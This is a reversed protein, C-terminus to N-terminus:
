ELSALRRKLHQAAIVYGGNSGDIFHFHHRHYAKVMCTILATESTNIGYALESQRYMGELVETLQQLQHPTGSIVLRLMGDFKRHDNNRALDPKYLGWDTAPSVYGFKMFAKGLVIQLQIRLLYLIRQWWSRGSTRFRIEGMLQPISRSMELEAVPIPNTRDDFGFISELQALVTDYVADPADLGPNSQVLLTIVSKDKPGVEKWRCELGSFDAEETQDETVIQFSDARQSKILEEAYNLGGGIFVAQRYVDSVQFLAAKIDFGQRRIESVSFIAARLNLNFADAGHKMSAAFVSRAPQLLEPSFCITCGDGGFTFLVKQEEAKNLLGIIPSAGLINVWKYRNEKIAETSDVIDTVGVYWDDPLPMYNDSRSVRSFSELVPLTEYFRTTDPSM